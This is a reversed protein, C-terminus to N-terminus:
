FRASHYTCTCPTFLGRVPQGSDLSSVPEADQAADGFSTGIEPREEKSKRTAFTLRVLQLTEFCQVNACESVALLFACM